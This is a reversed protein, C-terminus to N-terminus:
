TKTFALAQSVRFCLSWDKHSRKSGIDFKGCERIILCTFNLNRTHNEPATKAGREGKVQIENGLGGELIYAQFEAISLHPLIQTQIM